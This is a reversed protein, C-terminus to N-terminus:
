SRSTRIYPDPHRNEYLEREADDILKQLMRPDSVSKNADFRRRIEMAQSRFVDYRPTWSMQLKLARRYLRTVRIRNLSTFAPMPAASLYSGSMKPSPNGEISIHLLGLLSHSGESVTEWLPSNTPPPCFCPFTLTLHLGSPYFPAKSFTLVSFDVSPWLRFPFFSCCLRSLCAVLSCGLCGLTSPLQPSTSFGFAKLFIAVSERLVM